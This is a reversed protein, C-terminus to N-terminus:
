RNILYLFVGYRLGKTSIMIDEFGFYKMFEILILGGPIIIDARGSMYDAMSRIQLLDKKILTNLMGSIEHVEMSKKHILNEEFKKMKHYLAYYSTPTGAVGVLKKNHLNLFNIRMFEDNVMDSAEELKAKPYKGEKFYKDKMTVSGMNLSKYYFLDDFLFGFETSGGGVDLVAYDDSQPLDYTAGFYSYRAEMEGSIIEVQSDIKDSLEDAVKMSNRAARFSYTGFAFIRDSNYKRALAAYSKLTKSTRTIAEKSIEGKSQLNEGLRPTDFAEHVRILKGDVLEAILLICTNTGIDIVAIRSSKQQM